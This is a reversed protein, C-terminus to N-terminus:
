SSLTKINLRFLKSTVQISPKNLDGTLHVSLTKWGPKENSLIINLMEPPIESTLRDSFYVVIDANIMGTFYMVTGNFSVRIDEGVVEIGKIRMEKVTPTLEGSITSYRWKSNFPSELLAALTDYKVAEDKYGKKIFRVDGLRFKLTMGKLSYCPNVEAKHALFGINTDKSILSLDTFFIEGRINPVATKYTIELKYDKSFVYVFIKTYLFASALTVIALLLFIILIARKM